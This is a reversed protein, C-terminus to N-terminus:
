TAGDETKKKSMKIKDCDSMKRFQKNKMDTNRKDIYLPVIGSVPVGFANPRECASSKEDFCFDTRM